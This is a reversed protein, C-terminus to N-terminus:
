LLRRWRLVVLTLVGAAVILLMVWWFSSQGELGPLGAVNMGFVGTILTMPLLVASLVSLVFLRRGIQESLWAALEEQLLKAREYTDGVEELLFAFEDAVEKLRELDARAVWEPARQVFKQLAARDHAFHRRIGACRRRVLGLRERHEAVRGALMRDEIDNAEEALRDSEARLTHHRLDLLHAILGIGSDFRLGDRMQQRLRDSSKLPHSRASIVLHRAAYAWLTAVESTDGAADLWLDHMTLLLGDGGAEIMPRTDREVVLTRFSEPVLPTTALFHAARTNTLSFHLWTVGEQAELVPVVDAARLLRPEDGEHLAFGCILANDSLALEAAERALAPAARAFAERAAATM